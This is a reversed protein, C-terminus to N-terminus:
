YMPKTKPPFGKVLVINQKNPIAYLNDSFFFGKKSIICINENGFHMYLTNRNCNSVTISSRIPQNIRVIFIYLDWLNLNRYFIVFVIRCM